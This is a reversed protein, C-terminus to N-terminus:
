PRAPADAWEDLAGCVSFDYQAEILDPLGASRPDTYRTLGPPHQKRSHHSEHMPPPKYVVDETKSHSYPGSHNKIGSEKLISFHNSRKNTASPSGEFSHAQGSPAAHSTGISSHILGSGQASSDASLQIGDALFVSTGERPLKSLMTERKLGDDFTVTRAPNIAGGEAKQASNYDLDLDTGPALSDGNSKSSPSLGSEAFGKQFIVRSPFKDPSYREVPRSFLLNQKQKGEVQSSPACCLKDTCLGGQANGM